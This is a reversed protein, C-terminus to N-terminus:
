LKATSATIDTDAAPAASAEPSKVSAEAAAPNPVPIESMAEPDPRLFDAKSAPDVNVVSAPANPGWVPADDGDGWNRPRYFTHVGLRYLRTMEHVWSPHVWYAHYHTAHGVEALWIKGDLTDRAIQKAQEWMDPEDIKNLDKNECAFTFQCALHRHSNQYVVGCVDHPYYGSFVRNMVVQAVAEQGKMVEGRAEFYIADALCKQAEARPPGALGLRQAPSLVRSEDKGTVTEDGGYDDNDELSSMKINAEPPTVLIPEAGPAWSQLGAPEGMISNGFYIQASRDASSGDIFSAEGFNTQAVTMEGSQPIEPPKDAIEMADDGGSPVNSRDASLMSRPAITNGAEDAHLGAPRLVSTAPNAAEAAAMSAAQPAAAPNAADMQMPAAADAAPNAAANVPAASVPPSSDEAHVDSKTPQPAVVPQTVAPTAPQAAAAAGIPQLQPLTKPDLAAPAAPPLRDGKNSRNVAPYEVQRTSRGTLAEDVKWAYADLARPDFNVNQFELPAPIVTGIPRTFNFTAREITGFPSAILHEGGWSASMSPRHAILAALDQYGISTPMLAICFASLWFRASNSARLVRVRSAM